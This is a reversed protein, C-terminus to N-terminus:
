SKDQAKDPERKPFAPIKEATDGTGGTAGPVHCYIATSHILGLPLHGRTHEALVARALPGAQNDCGLCRHGSLAAGRVSCAQTASVGTWGLHAVPSM